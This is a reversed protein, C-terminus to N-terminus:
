PNEIKKILINVEKFARKNKFAKAIRKVADLNKLYNDLWSFIDGPYIQIQYKKMVKKSIDIPDKGKLREFIIFESIGRQLCGCFPRESCRCRLFDIQLNLLSEQFKSDLKALTDGSSIIDLTSESFLRTSVNMKLANSLKSHILPSLYASEFLELEMAIFLVVHRVINLKKNNLKFLIKKEFVNEQNILVNRLYNRNQLSKRIYEADEVTLFSMAVARGYSTISMDSRVLEKDVLEDCISELSVPFEIGKYFDSIQQHNRVALSSIDSLVEEIADDPTYDIIVKETDSELLNLAVAEENQNDFSNGIEPLLYVKGLDHYSPRGARGLMQSFENPGIWSNGMLLSDFIVQSAPFDVGAALAATTVVAAIKGKDFDKEIKEKKFYSLGAHYPRVNLGKGSLYNAIQHTKRRSNTFIISQGKFGKSSLSNYEKKVLKRMLRRKESENRNYIIHREIPVPRQSYEVLNAKLISALFKPNKVTASLAINQVNPFLKNIRKILGFLRIGRDEDDLNHIEDILIVGIEGLEGYNGSRLLFDIGEYTAVIIDADTVKSKKIRLEGKAKVRNMGVKITVKLGLPEYKKKFERYKQNALAVLPTLFIFKKGEMAKPVGALEGILTKGSGTASVALINKGKLLGEKIALYQVPLLKKNGHKILINKFDKPIKLRKMDIDPIKSVKDAKIKDYLTYNSNLENFRHHIVKIIEELNGSREFLEKFNRFVSKDYGQQNLESKITNLACEKCILQNNMKYTNKSNIITINGEYACFDCIHTFRVKIGQKKLFEELLEDKEVIFVAQSKLLKLVDSPPLLKEENEYKAIFRSIYIDNNERKFKLIGIFSPVRKSNLAGKPSGIPFVEYSKKKKKIIIM